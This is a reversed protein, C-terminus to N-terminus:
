KNSSISHADGAEWPTRNPNDKYAPVYHNYQDPQTTASGADGAYVPTGINVIPPITNIKTNTPTDSTPITMNSSADGNTMDTTPYPAANAISTLLSLSLLCFITKTSRM